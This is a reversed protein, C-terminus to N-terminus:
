FENMIQIITPGIMVIFLVPLFFLIMPVTLKPPLAAAKEEAKTLRQQRGEQAAVRLAQAIPTGYREAQILAICLAKISPIDTRKALNELALSRDSLFAFEAATLACEEAIEAADQGLDDSVRNLAAELSQGAEVCILMLDLADPFQQMLAKRRRIIANKVLIGPLVYGFAGGLLAVMMVAGDPMALQPNIRIYLATFIALLPPAVLRMMTFIIAHRPSRWGAQILKQRLEPQEIMRQLGFRKTWAEWVGLRSIEERLGGGSRERKVADFLRARNEIKDIRAEARDRKSLSWGLGIVTAAALLSMVSALFQAPDTFLNAFM